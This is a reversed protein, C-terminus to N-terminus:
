SAGFPATPALFLLWVAGADAAGDDDGPAGVALERLGDGDLDGLTALASGFEDFNDLAAGLDSSGAVRRQQRVTGDQAPFLIWLAGRDRNGDDDGPAGVALEAVGDGDLDGLTVLASGFRDGPQLAGTFGSTDRAIERERLVSGVDQAGALSGAV